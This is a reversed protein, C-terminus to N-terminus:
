ARITRCTCSTVVSARVPLCVYVEVSTFAIKVCRVLLCSPIAHGLLHIEASAEREGVSRQGHVAHTIACHLQRTWFHPSWRAINVAGDPNQSLGNFSTHVMDIRAVVITRMHRILDDLLREM